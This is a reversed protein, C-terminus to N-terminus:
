SLVPLADGNAFERWQGDILAQLPRYGAKYEMKDCGAIWFGLYLWSLGLRQAERIQWLLTFVGPSMSQRDPRYFTYIASLGQPVRDTVAVAQLEGRLRFELFRTACWDSTLFQRYQEPDPNAMGGDPHRSEIYDQYLQFHESDFDTGRDIVEVEQWRKWVRRQRRRPAFRAVPLRLPICRQCRDCRHRYVLNGSRRFGQELLLGYLPSSMPLQPDIFLSRSQRAQLYSCDATASLYCPLSESSRKRDNM